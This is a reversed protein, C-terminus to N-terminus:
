SAESGAFTRWEGFADVQVAEWRAAAASRITEAEDETLVGAEVAADVSASVRAKPLTKARIADKIKTEAPEAALVTALSAELVGLGLEDPGPIYIEPTLSIRAEGGDLIARAARRVIRDNPGNFRTHMPFLKWRLGIGAPRNPLNDLLGLLADQIEKLAHEASWRMLPLDRAPQGDDVFRKLAATGLYLWALGDALRGTLMEKRKLSGGLTGMAVEACTAYAASMREFHQFYREAPGEVPSRATLAGTWGQIAARAITTVVHGIHGFFATDFRKVDRAAVANMEELAYKHCRIAGQGFVIMSRTLINAGEVTIGIPIAQYVRALINRPGRVIGAGGVVDMGHNVVTRMAETSYCKVIATIVAPKEGADIAGATLWRAADLTYTTGAIEGLREQIGEFKGIPMNFQQRITAYAGVTRTTLQAAGCSQAPLSIGRGAALSQMLMGWGKGAMPPGGIIFELPVFVDEGETTGNVFPVGLPDHRPGTKVGPTDAPILACTIGLNKESGLLGDPDELKFALGVVTAVASLTIYRKSWTLRMGLVEEGKWQGRCVVGRSSMAGADSGAQAETLAFCPVEEGKALRPLYHNKQAETGYHLLLEAPGLSNPVMVTVGATVSRSSVMAVVAGNARASVGLGGYEKPIIMGLFGNDKLFQWIDPPLDDGNIIDWDDLRRCLETCPGDLFAQEDASLPQIQFDTLMSWDPQGSFLEKDWWVTGAELAESETQSMTPFIPALLKMLTPTILMRRVPAFGLTLLAGVYLVTCTWLGFGAAESGIRWFLLGLGIPVVWAAWPRGVYLLWAYLAFLAVLLLLTM